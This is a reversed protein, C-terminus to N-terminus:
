EVLMKLDPLSPPAQWKGRQGCKRSAPRCETMRRGGLGNRVLMALDCAAWRRCGPCYCALERGHELLGGFTSLNIV